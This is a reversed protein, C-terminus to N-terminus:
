PNMDAERVARVFAAIKEPSKERKASEVGSSVDVAFPHLLRVVDGVNTPNLGGAAILAGLGDLRRARQLERVQSWDNAIGSGGPVGAILTSTDMVIGILNTLKMDGVAALWVPLADAEDTRLAKIVRIPKLEAVLRPSERGHLQIASLPIEEMVQRISEADADVFLGVISVLPSVAAVIERAQQMSVCRPAAPDFVIGIADVGADVAAAADAARCIGDIKIRTRPM